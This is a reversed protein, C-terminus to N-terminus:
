RGAAAAHTPELRELSPPEHDVATSEAPQTRPLWLTFAAGGQPLNDADIQGGHAEVIRRCIPLGLGTGTEKTSVFPEFIRPGLDAPLGIGDDAVRLSYGPRDSAFEDRVRIVVNGGGPLADLANFLLNLLVQKIQGGDAEVQAARSPLERHLAVHQQEARASVLDATQQVLQRLDVLRKAPQPPRAFDLLSQISEELRGIEEEVVALDRGRLGGGSEREAAAQVLIKMAMLPNRLEHALGAALQGVAALQESRLVERERQELREVVTGIHDAMNQLARELEEFGGGTSLTIPGVVENLKGAAGHVPVSLQVISRSIGRAIGFGALLGAAAGCLGLLLLGLGMRDAVVQNQEGRLAVVKRHFAVYEHAPEFMEQQLTDGNLLMELRGAIEDEPGNTALEVDAFFRLRGRDLQELLQQERADEASQKATALLRDTADRLPPIQALYDREGTRLFSNLKGRVERMRIELDEAALMSAMDRALLVSNEQQMSHVYWASVIGVALLLLSVGIMPGTVRLFFKANM